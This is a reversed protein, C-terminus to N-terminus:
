VPIPIRLSMPLSGSHLHPPPYVSHEHFHVLIKSCFLYISWYLRSVKLIIGSPHWRTCKTNIYKCPGPIITLYCSFVLIITKGKHLVYYLAQAYNITHGQAACHMHMPIFPTFIFCSLPQVLYVLKATIIDRKKMNEFTSLCEISVEHAGWLPWIIRVFGFVLGFPAILCLQYLIFDFDEVHNDQTRSGTKSWITCTKM